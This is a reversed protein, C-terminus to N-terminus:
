ELGLLKHQQISLSYGYKYCSEIAAQTNLKNREEDGEDLPQVYINRPYIFASMPPRAVPTTNGLTMLPLGDEKSIQGHQVVYKWADVYKVLDPHVKPTKPSCVISVSVGWDDNEYCSDDPYFLTGNTEIQVEWNYSATVRILKRLDQRFPEGGTVVMINNLSDGSFLRAKDLIGEATMLKRSNTYDTDCFGCCLNCGALRVFIAPRGAFPGEGQITRFISHVDLKGDSRLEQKEIPQKNLLRLATM